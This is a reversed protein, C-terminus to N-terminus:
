QFHISFEVKRLFTREVILVQNVIRGRLGTQKTILTKGIMKSAIEKVEPASTAFQVGSQMNSEKFFGKGRGGAHVQSFL